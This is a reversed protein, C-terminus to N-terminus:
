SPAPGGAKQGFLREMIAKFLEDLMKRIAEMMKDMMEALKKRKEEELTATDKVKSLVGDEGLSKELESSVTAQLEENGNIGAKYDSLRQISSAHEAALDSITDMNERDAAVFEPANISPSKQAVLARAAQFRAGPDDPYQKMLQDSSAKAEVAKRAPGAMANQTHIAEMLTARQDALLGLHEGVRAAQKAQIRSAMASSALKAGSLAGSLGAKGAKGAIGAATNLVTSVAVGTGAVAGGVGMGIGQAVSGPGSGGGLAQQASQQQTSNSSGEDSFLEGADATNENEQEDDPDAAGQPQEDKEEPLKALFDSESVETKAPVDLPATDVIDVPTDGDILQTSRRRPKPKKAM